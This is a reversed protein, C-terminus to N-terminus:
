TTYVRYYRQAGVILQVRWSSNLYERLTRPDARVSRKRAARSWRVVALGLSFASRDNYHCSTFYNTLFRGIADVVKVIKTGARSDTQHLRPVQQLLPPDLWAYASSDSLISYTCDRNNLKRVSMSSKTLKLRQWCESTFKETLTASRNFRVEFRDAEEEIELLSLFLAKCGYRAGLGLIRFCRDIRGIGATITALGSRDRTPTYRNLQAPFLPLLELSIRSPRHCRIRSAISSSTRCYSPPVLDVRM